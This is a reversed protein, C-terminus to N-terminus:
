VEFSFRKTSTSSSSRAARSSVMFYRRRPPSRRPSGSRRTLRRESQAQSGGDRGQGQAPRAPRRSEGGLGKRGSVEVFPRDADESTDYGLERATAHSLRGNTRTTSPTLRGAGRLQPRCAGAELAEPTLSARTSSTASGRHAASCPSGQCRRCSQPRPGFAPNGAGFVRYHFDKGLLGFKLLQYAMEKGVYTVTGGLTVIVKEKPEEEETEEAAPEPTSGDEIKM